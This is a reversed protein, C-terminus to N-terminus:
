CRGRRFFVAGEGGAHHLQMGNRQHLIGASGTSSVDGHDGGPGDGNPWHFGPECFLDADPMGAYVIIGETLPEGGQHYRFFDGIGGHGHGQQPIMGMHLEVVEPASQATAARFHVLKIEDNQLM